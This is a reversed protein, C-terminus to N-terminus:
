PKMERNIKFVLNLTHYAVLQHVSLQNSRNCLLDTSTGQDLGTITRMVQNHLVQLKRMDEKTVSISNRSEEDYGTLGWVGGWVIIGYILKSSFIGNVIIRFKANSLNIRLKRLIGVRSSLQSLLGENEDDGYFNNRWIGVNNM